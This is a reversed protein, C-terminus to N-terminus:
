HMVRGKPWAEGSFKLLNNHHLGFLLSFNLSSCILTIYCYWEM